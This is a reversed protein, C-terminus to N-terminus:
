KPKPQVVSNFTEGFMTTVRDVTFAELENSPLKVIEKKKLDSRTVEKCFGGIKYTHDYQHIELALIHPSLM